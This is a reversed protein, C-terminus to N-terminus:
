DEPSGISEGSKKAAARLYDDVAQRTQETLEFGPSQQQCFRGERPTAAEM